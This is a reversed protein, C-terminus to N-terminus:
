PSSRTKARRSGHIGRHRWGELRRQRAEEPHPGLNIFREIIDMWLDIQKAKRRSSVMPSPGYADDQPLRNM